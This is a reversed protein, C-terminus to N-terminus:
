QNKGCKSILFFEEYFETFRYFFRLLGISVIKGKKREGKKREGEERIREGKGRTKATEKIRENRMRKIIRERNWKINGKRKERRAIESERHRSKRENGEEVM